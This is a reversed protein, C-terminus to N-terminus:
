MEDGALQKLYSSLSIGKEWKKLFNRNFLHMTILDKLATIPCMAKFRLTCDSLKPFYAIADLITKSKFKIFFGLITDRARHILESVLLADRANILRPPLRGDDMQVVLTFSAPQLQRYGHPRLMGIFGIIAAFQLLCRHRQNSRSFNRMFIYRPLLFAAHLDERSPLM